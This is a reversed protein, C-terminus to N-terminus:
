FTGTSLMVLTCARLVEVGREDLEIELTQNETDPNFIVRRAGSNLIKSEYNKQTKPGLYLTITDPKFVEGEPWTTWIPLGVATGPRAGLLYCTHGAAVLREVAQYAYREPNSSAGLILVNM